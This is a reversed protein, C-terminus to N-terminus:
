TCIFIIVNLKACYKHLLSYDLQMSKGYVKHFYTEM